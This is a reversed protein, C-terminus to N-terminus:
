TRSWAFKYRLTVAGGATDGGAAAGDDGFGGGDCFAEGFGFNYVFFAGIPRPMGLFLFGISLPAGHSLRKFGFAPVFSAGIPLAM